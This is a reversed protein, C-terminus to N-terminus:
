DNHLHEKLQSRQFSLLQEQYESLHRILEDPVIRYLVMLQRLIDMPPLSRGREWNSIFQPSSYLLRKAVAAQSLGVNERWKKLPLGVTQLRISVENLQNQTM